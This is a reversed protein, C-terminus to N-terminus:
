EHYKCSGLPVTQKHMDYIEESFNKNIRRVNSPQLAKKGAHTPYDCHTGKFATRGWNITLNARHCPCITLTAKTAEEIDFKGARNLIIDTESLLGVRTKKSALGLSKLYHSM